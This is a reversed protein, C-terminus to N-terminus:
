TTYAKRNANHAPNHLLFQIYPHQKTLSTTYKQNCDDSNCEWGFDVTPVGAYIAGSTKDLFSYSPL